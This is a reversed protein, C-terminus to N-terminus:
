AEWYYLTGASLFFVAGLVLFAMVFRLIVAKLLPRSDLKSATEKNERM